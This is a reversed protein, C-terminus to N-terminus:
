ANSSHTGYEEIVSIWSNPYRMRLAARIAELMLEDDFKQRMIRMIFDSRGFIPSVHQGWANPPSALTEVYHKAYDELKWGSIDM